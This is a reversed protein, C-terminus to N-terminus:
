WRNHQTRGCVGSSRQLNVDPAVLAGLKHCCRGKLLRSDIIAAIPNEDVAPIYSYIILFILLPRARVKVRAGDGCRDSLAAYNFHWTLM